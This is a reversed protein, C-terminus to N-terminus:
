PATLLSDNTPGDGPPALAISRLFEFSYLGSDHGDGWSLRMAYSGVPEVDSLEANAGEVFRKEMVFHGQCHACPCWGRLYRLSFTDTRGDSWTIVLRRQASQLHVETPVIVM